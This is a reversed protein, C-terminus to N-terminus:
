IWWQRLRNFSLIIYISNLSQRGMFYGEAEDGLGGNGNNEGFMM